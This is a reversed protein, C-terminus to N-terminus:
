LENRRKKFNVREKEIVIPRKKIYTHISGIYEGLTGIFLMLLGFMLFILILIPAYGLPFSDWYIIKLVVIFNAALFCIFGIIFGILSALRLPILTHSVIGLIAIDYLSYLNNKSKGSHRKVQVFPIRKIEYGIEVIIGRFYPYPDNIKRVEDLVVTDYIGFGTADSVHPVDSLRNLFKYYLRRIAHTIGNTESISKIGWAVKYGQEWAEIFYPILEPPDQLDSALYITAHGTSQIVGWYPSRIHGFNRLNIILKIRCDKSALEKLIEITGDTSSNDIFLIEFNYNTCTSIVANVRKYFEAIIEHENYCPAVITITKKDVEVKKLNRWNKTKWSKPNM